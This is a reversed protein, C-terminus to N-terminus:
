LGKVDVQRGQVRVTINTRHTLISTEITIVEPEIDIDHALYASTQGTFRGVTEGKDDVLYKWKLIDYINMDPRISYIGRDLLYVYGKKVLKQLSDYYQKTHEGIRHRGAIWLPHHKFWADMEMMLAAEYTMNGNARDKKYYPVCLPCFPGKVLSIYRGVIEKGCEKHRIRVPGSKPFDVVEYEDGISATLKKLRRREREQSKCDPCTPNARFGTLFPMLKTGCKHRLTIVGKIPDYAEVTFGDAISDIQAQL